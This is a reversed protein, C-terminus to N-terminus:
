GSESGKCDSGKFLLVMIYRNGEARAESGRVKEKDRSM